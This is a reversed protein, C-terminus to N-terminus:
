NRAGRGAAYEIARLLDARSVPKVLHVDAGARVARLSHTQGHGSLTCIFTDRSWPRQRVQGITEFGDLGPMSLDMLILDPRFEDGISLADRGGYAVRVDRGMARLLNAMSDVADINDDVVLVKQTVGRAAAAPM